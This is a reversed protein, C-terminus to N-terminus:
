GFKMVGNGFIIGQKIWVLIKLRAKIVKRWLFDLWKGAVRAKITDSSGDEPTASINQNTGILFAALLEVAEHTKPIFLNSLFPNLAKDVWSMYMKFSEVWEKEKNVRDKGYRERAGMIADVEEKEEQQKDTLEKKPAGSGDEPKTKRRALEPDAIAVSSTYSEQNAM